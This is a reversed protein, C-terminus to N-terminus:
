QQQPGDDHGSSGQARTASALWQEAPGHSEVMVSVSVDLSSKAQGLYYGSTPAIDQYDRGVAVSVYREDCRRQNTPDYAVWLPSYQDGVPLLVEVWAHM